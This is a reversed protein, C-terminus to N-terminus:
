KFYEKLLFIVVATGALFEIILSRTKEKRMKSLESELHKKMEEQNTIKETEFQNKMEEKISLERELRNKMEEMIESLESELHKKMEEQKTIMESELRNKMEEKFRESKEDMEGQLKEKELKILNETRKQFVYSELRNEHYYFFRIMNKYKSNEIEKTTNENFIGNHVLAFYLNTNENLNPFLNKLYKTFNKSRKYFKPLHNITPHNESQNKQSSNESISDENSIWNSKVEFFILSNAPITLISIGDTSEFVDSPLEINTSTYFVADMEEVYSNKRSFKFRPMEEAKELKLFERIPKEKKLGYFERSKKLTLIPKKLYTSVLDEDVYLLYEEDGFKLIKKQKTLNELEPIATERLHNIFIDNDIFTKEKSNNQRFSCSSNSKESDFLKFIKQGGQTNESYIQNVNFCTDKNSNYFNKPNIGVSSIASHDEHKRTTQKHISNPNTKSKNPNDTKRNNYNNTDENWTQAKRDM